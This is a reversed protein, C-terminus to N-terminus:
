KGQEGHGYFEYLHEQWMSSGGQHINYETHEAYNNFNGCYTKEFFDVIPFLDNFLSEMM